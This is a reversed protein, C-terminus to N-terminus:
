LKNEQVKSKIKEYSGDKITDLIKFMKQRENIKEEM